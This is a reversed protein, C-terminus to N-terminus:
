ILIGELRLDRQESSLSVMVDVFPIDSITVKQNLKIYVNPHLLSINPWEYIAMKVM